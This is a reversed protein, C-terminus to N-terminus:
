GYKVGAVWGTCLAPHWNNPSRESVSNCIVMTVIVTMRLVDDDDNDNDRRHLERDGVMWPDTELRGKDPEKRAWKCWRGKGQMPEANLRIGRHWRNQKRHFNIQTTQQKMPVQPWKLIGTVSGENRQRKKKRRWPHLSFVLWWVTKMKKNEGGVQTIVYRHMVQARIKKKWQKGIRPDTSCWTKSNATGSEHKCM